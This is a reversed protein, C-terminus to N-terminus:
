TASTRQADYAARRAPDSLVAHARNLAVLRGVADDHNGAAAAERLVVFAADIVAPCAHSAVELTAYHDTM